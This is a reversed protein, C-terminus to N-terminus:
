NNGLINQVVTTLDGKFKELLQTNLNDDTFGMDHLFVLETAWKSTQEVKKEIAVVKLNLKNGFEEGDKTCLRFNAEYVGQSIPAMLTVSVDVDEETNATPVKFQSNKLLGFEQSGGLYLLVVGEEWSQNGTNKVKWIKTFNEGCVVEAGDILTVDKVFRASNVKKEVKKEEKKEEIPDQKIEEKKEFVIPQQPYFQEFVNSLSEQISTSTVNNLISGIQNVTEQFRRQAELDNLKSLITEYAHKFNEQNLVKNSEEFTKTFFQQVEKMVNPGHPKTGLKEIVVRFLKDKTTETIRIAEKYEEENTLDVIDNEDDVYKFTVNELSFSKQFMSEIQILFQKFTLTSNVKFRRCQGEFKAKVHFQVNQNM